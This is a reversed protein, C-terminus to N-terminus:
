VGKALYQGATSLCQGLPHQGPDPRAARHSNREGADSGHCLCSLVGMGHLEARKRTPHHQGERPAVGIQGNGPPRRKKRRGRGAAGDGDRATRIGCSTPCLPSVWNIATSSRALISAMTGQSQKPTSASPMVLDVSCLHLDYVQVPLVGEAVRRQDCVGLNPPM